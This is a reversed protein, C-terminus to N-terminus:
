EKHIAGAALEACRLLARLMEVQNQAVALLLKDSQAQAQLESLAKYDASYRKQIFGDRETQNKGEVVGNAYDIAIINELENKSTQYKQEAMFASMMKSELIKYANEINVALENANM